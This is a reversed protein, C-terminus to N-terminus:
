GNMNIKKSKFYNYIHVCTAMCVQATVCMHDSSLKQSNGERVTPELSSSLKRPMHLSHNKRGVTHSAWTHVHQHLLHYCLSTM